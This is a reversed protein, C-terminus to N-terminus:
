ALQGCFGDPAPRRDRENACSLIYSLVLEALNKRMQVYLQEALM